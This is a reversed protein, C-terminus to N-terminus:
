ARALIRDIVTASLEASLEHNVARASAEPLLHEVAAALAVARRVLTRVEEKREEALERWARDIRASTKGRTALRLGTSALLPRLAADWTRGGEAVGRAATGGGRLLFEVTVAVAEALRALVDYDDPRRGTEYRWISNLTVGARGALERQTLGTQRRAAALREGFAPDPPRRALKRRTSKHQRIEVL